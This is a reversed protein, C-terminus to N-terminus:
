ASYSRLFCEFKSALCPARRRWWELLVAAQPLTSLVCQLGELLRQEQLPILGVVELTEKLSQLVAGAAKAQM